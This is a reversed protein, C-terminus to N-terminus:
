GSPNTPRRWSSSRETPEDIFMLRYMAVMRQLDSGAEPEGIMRSCQGSIVTACPIQQLHSRSGQRSRVQLIAASPDSEMIADAGLCQYDLQGLGLSGPFSGVQHNDSTIQM